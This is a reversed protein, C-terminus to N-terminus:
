FLTAAREHMAVANAHQDLTYLANAKARLSKALVVQSGVTEAVVIAIDAMREANAANVHVERRVRDTLTTVIGEWDFSPHQGVVEHQSAIDTLALLRAIM